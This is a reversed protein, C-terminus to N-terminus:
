PPGSRAGLAVVASLFRSTSTTCNPHEDEYRLSRENRAAHMRVDVPVAAEKCACRSARLQETIKAEDDAPTVTSTSLWGAHITTMIGSLVDPGLKILPGGRKHRAGSVTM